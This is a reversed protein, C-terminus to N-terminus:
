ESVLLESQQCPIAYPCGQPLDLHQEKAQPGAPVAGRVTVHVAVHVAAPVAVHVDVAQFLAGDRGPSARRQGHKYIEGYTRKAAAHLHLTVSGRIMDAATTDSFSSGRTIAILCPADQELFRNSVPVLLEGEFVRPGTDPSVKQTTTVQLFVSAM